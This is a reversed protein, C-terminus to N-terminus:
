FIKKGLKRAEAVFFDQWEKPEIKELMRPYDKVEKAKLLQIGLQIPDIHWDFKIKAQKLLDRLTYKKEKVIFFIDIFDRARPQMSITHVKNVAIDYLSDITIGSYKLGKGIRGFPYYSFDVKLVENSPLYLFFNHIGFVGRYDVKLLKLEKDVKGIFRKILELNVEEKEIFFDLDESYRHFLYFASLATGGSLYFEEYIYKEKSALELFKKQELTLIEEKAM